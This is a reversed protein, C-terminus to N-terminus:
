RQNCLVGSCREWVYLGSKRWRKRAEGRATEYTRGVHGGCRM